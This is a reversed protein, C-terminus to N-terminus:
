VEKTAQGTHVFLNANTWSQPDQAHLDQHIWAVLFRLFVLFMAHANLGFSM